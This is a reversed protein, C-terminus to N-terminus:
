CIRLPMDHHCENHKEWLLTSWKFNNGEETNKGLLRSRRFVTLRWFEERPLFSLAPKTGDEEALKNPFTKWIKRRKNNLRNFTLFKKIM